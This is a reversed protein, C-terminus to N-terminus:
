FTDTVSGASRPPVAHELFADFTIHIRSVLKMKKEGVRNVVVSYLSIHSIMLISSSGHSAFFTKKKWFYDYPLL